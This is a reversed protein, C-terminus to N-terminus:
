RPLYVVCVNSGKISKAAGSDGGVYVRRINCDGDGGGGGGGGM